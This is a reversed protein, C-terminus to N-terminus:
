YEKRNIQGIEFMIEEQTNLKNVRILHYSCNIVVMCYIKFTIKAMSKFKYLSVANTFSLKREATTNIYKDVSLTTDYKLNNLTRYFIFHLM